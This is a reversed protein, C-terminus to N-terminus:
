FSTFFSRNRGQAKAQYLAQDAAEVLDLPVLNSTPIVAAVGISLTVRNEVASAIHPINLKQVVQHIEQAILAAGEVDTNEWWMQLNQIDYIWIPTQLREFARLDAPSIIQHPPNETTSNFKQQLNQPLQPSRKMTLQQQLEVNPITIGLETAVLKLFEIEVATWQRPSSCQQAILL